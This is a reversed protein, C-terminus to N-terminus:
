LSASTRRDVISCFNTMAEAEFASGGPCTM